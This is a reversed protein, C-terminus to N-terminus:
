ITQRLMFVNEYVKLGSQDLRLSFFRLIKGTKYLPKIQEGKSNTDAVAGKVADFANQLLEKVTVEALASSYMNAGLLQILNGMNANLQGAEEGFKNDQEKSFSVMSTTDPRAMFTLSTKPVRQYAKPSKAADPRMRVYDGELGVVTGPTSGFRVMDGVMFDQALTKLKDKTDEQVFKNEEQINKSKEPGDQEKKLAEDFAAMATDYVKRGARFDDDGIEQKRYAEQVKRFAASARNALESAAQYEASPGAEDAFMDETPAEPKGQTQSELQFFDVADDAQKKEEADREDWRGKFPSFTAKPISKLPGSDPNENKQGHIQLEAGQQKFALFVAEIAKSSDNM